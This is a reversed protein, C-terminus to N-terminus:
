GAPHPVSRPQARCRRNRDFRAVGTYSMRRLNRVDSAGGGAVVLFYHCRSSTNMRIWSTCCKEQGGDILIANHEVDQDVAPAMFAAFLNKLRHTFAAIRMKIKRWHFENTITL